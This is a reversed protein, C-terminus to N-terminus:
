APVHKKIGTDSREPKMTDRVPQPFSPQKEERTEDVM